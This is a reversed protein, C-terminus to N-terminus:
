APNQLNGYSRTVISYCVLSNMEKKLDLTRVADNKKKKIDCFVWTM